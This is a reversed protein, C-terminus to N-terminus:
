ATPQAFGPLLFCKGSSRGSIAASQAEIVDYVVDVVLSLGFIGVPGGPPWVAGKGPIVRKEIGTWL